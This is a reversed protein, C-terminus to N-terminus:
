MECAHQISKHGFHVVHQYTSSTYLHDVTHSIARNIGLEIQDSAHLLGGAGGTMMATVALQM